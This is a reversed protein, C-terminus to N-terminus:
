ATGSGRTQFFVLVGAVASSFSGKRLPIIRWESILVPARQQSPTIRSWTLNSSNFAWTDNLNALGSATGGFLLIQNRPADDALRHGYRASPPNSPMVQTWDTGNWIWTEGNPGAATNGGFLVIRQTAPDYAMSHDYRASPHHVPQRQTWFRGDWAWTDGLIGSSGAGGFLITEGTAADFAMAAQSRETIPSTPQEWIGNWVWTDGAPVSGADSAVTGGFMVVQNRFLDTAM